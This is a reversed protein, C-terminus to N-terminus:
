AKGVIHSDDCPAILFKICVTIRDSRKDGAFAAAFAFNNVTSDEDCNMSLVALFYVEFEMVVEGTFVAVKGLTNIKCVHTACKFRRHM